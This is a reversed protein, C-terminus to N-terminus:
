HKRKKEKHLVFAKHIHKVVRAWDADPALPRRCIGQRAQGIIYKCSNIAAAKYWFSKSDMAKGNVKIRTLSLIRCFLTKFAQEKQWRDLRSDM